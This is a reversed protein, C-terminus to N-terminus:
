VHARGIKETKFKKARLDINYVCKSGDARLTTFKCHAIKFNLSDFTFKYPLDVNKDKNNLRFIGKAPADLFEFDGYYEPFTDTFTTYQGKLYLSDCQALLSNISHFFFFSLFITKKM